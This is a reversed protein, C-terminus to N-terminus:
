LGWSTVTLVYARTVGNFTLDSVADALWTDAAARVSAEDAIAASRQVAENAIAASLATDGSQRAAAEAAIQTAADGSSIGIAGGTRSFMALLFARWAPTVNGSRDVLPGNPFGVNLVTTM